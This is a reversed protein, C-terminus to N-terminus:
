SQGASTQKYGHVSMRTTSRFLDALLHLVDDSRIRRAVLIALCERTYEDIITLM